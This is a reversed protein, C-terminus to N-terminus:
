KKIKKIIEDEFWQKDTSNSFSDVPIYIFQAKAIYLLYYESTKFVKIFHETKLPQITGDELFANIIDPEIEYHRELM